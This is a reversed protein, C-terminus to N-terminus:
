KLGADHAPPMEAINWRTATMAPKALEATTM